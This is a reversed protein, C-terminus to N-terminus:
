FRETASYEDREDEEVGDDQKGPLSPTKMELERVVLEVLVDALPELRPDLM